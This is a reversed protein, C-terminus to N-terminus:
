HVTVGYENSNKIAQYVFDKANEVAARLTKGQSLYVAIATAFTCGAGNNNKDLLGREMFQFHSGDFFLDIAQNKVFRSGGKILVTKAGLQHLKLAANKMDEKDRIEMSALLEAERLNPMIITALPFLDILQSRLAVVQGDKNEKFILVPDLVVHKYQGKLLFDKTIKCIEETPLLGIKVTSFDVHGLSNLQKTFIDAPTPYISFGLQDVSTLCSQALFAFDGLTNITALDAQFGGGSLIDSGAITLINNKM